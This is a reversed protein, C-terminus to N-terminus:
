SGAPPSPRTPLPCPSTRAATSSPATSACRAPRASMTWSKACASASRPSSRPPTSPASCRAASPSCCHAAPRPREGRREAHRSIAAEGGPRPGRALHGPAGPRPLRRRGPRPRVGRLARALRPWARRGHAPARLGPGHGPRQGPARHARRRIGPPLLDPVTAFMQAAKMLPGKLRGLTEKLAKANRAEADGAGFLANAGFTAAAGSLGAGVRAFRSLRGSLRDREPDISM